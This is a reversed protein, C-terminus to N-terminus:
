SRLRNAPQNFLSYPFARWNLPCISLSKVFSRNRGPELSKETRGGHRLREVEQKELLIEISYSVIWSFVRVLVFINNTAKTHNRPDYKRKAQNRGLRRQKETTFLVRILHVV